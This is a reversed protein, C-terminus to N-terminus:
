RCLQQQGLDGIQRSRLDGRVVVRGTFSEVDAAVEVVDEGEGVLGPREHEAVDASATGSSGGGVCQDAVGGAGDGGEQRPRVGDDLRDVFGEEVARVLWPVPKTV